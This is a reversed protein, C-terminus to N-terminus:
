GVELQKNKIKDSIQTVIMIKVKTRTQHIRLLLQKNKVVSTHAGTDLVAQAPTLFAAGNTAQITNCPKALYVHSMM